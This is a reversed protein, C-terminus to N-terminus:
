EQAVLCTQYRLAVIHDRCKSIGYLVGGIILCSDFVGCLSYSIASAVPYGFISFIPGSCWALQAFGCVQIILRRDKRDCIQYDGWLGMELRQWFSPLVTIQASELDPVLNIITEYNEQSLVSDNTGEFFSSVQSPNAILRLKNKEEKSLMLFTSFQIKKGGIKIPNNQFKKHLKIAQMMPTCFFVKVISRQDDEDYAYHLIKLCLEKPLMAINFTYSSALRHKLLQQRELPLREVSYRVDKMPMDLIHACHEIPYVKPVMDLEVIKRRTHHLLSSNVDSEKAIDMGFLFHISTLLIVFVRYINNM